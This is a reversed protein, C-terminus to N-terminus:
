FDHRFQECIKFIFKYNISVKGGLADNGSRSGLSKMDFGRITQPGGLFFLDGINHTQVRADLPTLPRIVGFRAAGQM